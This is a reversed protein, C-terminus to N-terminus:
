RCAVAHDGRHGASGTDWLSLQEPGGDRRDSGISRRGPPPGHVLRHVGTVGGVVVVLMVVFAALGVVPAPDTRWVIAQRTLNAIGLALAYVWWPPGWPTRRDVYARATRRITTRM